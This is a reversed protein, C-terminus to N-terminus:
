AGNHGGRRCLYNKYYTLYKSYSAPYIKLESLIHGMWVPMVGPAKIEMLVTRFDTLKEGDPEEKLSLRDSRATINTDFTIRLEENEMCTFATRDYWICVKPELGYRRRTYHIESFIQGKDGQISGFMLYHEAEEETMQMRRKYVIGEYKKKLELFVASKKGAPVGYSRLRMKEKYLPKEMSARILDYDPTDLYLNGVSYSGYQEAVLIGRMVQMFRQYQEQTLLYKIEYRKFVTQTM